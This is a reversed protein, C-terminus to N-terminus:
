LRIKAELWWCISWRWKCMASWAGRLRSCYDYVYWWGKRLICFAWRSLCLHFRLLFNERPKKFYNPKISHLIKQELVLFTLLDNFVHSPCRLHHFRSRILGVHLPCFDILINFRNKFYSWPMTQWFMAIFIKIISRINKRYHKFPHPSTM